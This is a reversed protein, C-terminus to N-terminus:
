QWVSGPDAPRYTKGNGAAWALVCLEKGLLQDIPNEGIKRAASKLNHAELRTARQVESRIASWRPRWCWATSCRRELPLEPHCSQISLGTVTRIM